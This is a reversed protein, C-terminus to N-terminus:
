RLVHRSPVGLSGCRVRLVYPCLMLRRAPSSPFCGDGFVGPRHGGVAASPKAINVRLVRGFLEANNMNDIADAADGREEFQVFAFGRHKESLRLLATHLSLYAVTLQPRRM